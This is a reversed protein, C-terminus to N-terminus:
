EEIQGIVEALGELYLDTVQGDTGSVTIELTGGPNEVKLYGEPLEGKQWLVVAVSASGTGCALTYDEVGREFTLIQVADEAVRRYLNVNVGKPFVDANRIEMFLPLLSEKNEWRLEPYETVSHPIGPNGLEVYAANPHCSFDVMSPNNLKVKYRDEGIREGYVVGADTEVQMKEGAIGQDYAFKCICRAGNGCMEGRSGDSNYFHLRFDAIDSVDAALFGDAGTKACLERSLTAFDLDKGRADMVVFDNGAGSMHLFKM